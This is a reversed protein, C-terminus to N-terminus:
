KMKSLKTPNKEHICEFVDNLLSVAFNSEQTSMIQLQAGSILIKNLKSPNIRKLVEFKQRVYPVNFQTRQEHQYPM